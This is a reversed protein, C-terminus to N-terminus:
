DLRRHYYTPPHSLTGLIASWPHIGRNGGTPRILALEEGPRGIPTFAFALCLALLYRAFHTCLTINSNIKHQISFIYESAFRAVALAPCSTRVAAALFLSYRM